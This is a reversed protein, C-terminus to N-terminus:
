NKSELINYGDKTKVHSIVIPPPKSSNKEKKIEKVEKVKIQVGSGVKKIYNNKIQQAIKDVSPGVNRLDEDIVLLIDIEDIKKQVIQYQIVKFTKLKHLVPTIFCFAGPPFVKGNPLIINARMRGEVGNIIIPTKLGCSCEKQSLRVWDDMGTYRIIPTGKGWLRTIVIHGREGSSILNNKNDIAELHFFDTHVHWNGKICEFAIDAGAEVSPYINLLRCKFADEVYTRTYEDLIAGGTWFLKPKINKGYGKKKFFALHQFIAPYAMIVDPRYSDLKNIIKIMPLNVDINLRNKMSFFKELHKQFNEQAILDIRYPNFNGIHVFKTKRWNLNFHNMERIIVSAAKAMTIFDTYISVPKGTTGGTCIIFGNEKKYGTPLIKDPFNNKLDNKTIFPLKKIDKIGNINRPHIGNKKYIDHYLPVSYAYKVMKKLAYDRYKEIQKQNLRKLRGPDFIINKLLPLTNLPNLFPNM